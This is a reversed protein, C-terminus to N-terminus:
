QGRGHTEREKGTASKKADANMNTIDFDLWDIRLHGFRYDRQELQAHEEGRPHHFTYRRPAPKPPHSPLIDFVSSPVVTPTDVFHSRHYSSSAQIAQPDPKSLSIVIHYGNRM